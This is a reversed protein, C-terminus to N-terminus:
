TRRRDEPAARITSFLGDITEQDVGKKKMVDELQKLFEEVTDSAISKYIVDVTPEKLVVARRLQERIFLRLAQEISPSFVNTRLWSPPNRQYAPLCEMVLRDEIDRIRREVLRQVAKHSEVLMKKFSAVREKLVSQHSKLLVKGYRPVSFLIDDIRQREKAINSPCIGLSSLPNDKWYDSPFLSLSAKMSDLLEHDTIKLLEPPLQIKKTQFRYNTAKIEVFAIKSVFVQFKRSIDFPQPPNKELSTKVNAVQGERLPQQGISHTADHALADSTATRLVIANPTPQDTSEPEAEILQPVPTYVMTVDDSIVLGIRIGDHEQIALNRARASRLIDLAEINGYGLRYVDDNNDLIVTISLGPRKQSRRVIAKAVAVPFAPSLVVLRKEAKGIIQSLHETSAVTFSTM